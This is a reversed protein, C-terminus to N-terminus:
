LGTTLKLITINGALYCAVDSGFYESVDSALTTTGDAEHYRINMVMSELDVYSIMNQDLLYKVIEVKTLRRTSRLSNIYSSVAVAISSSPQESRVSVNIDVSITEMRKALVNQGLVRTDPNNLYADIDKISSDAVYNIRIPEHVADADLVEVVNTEKASYRLGPDSVIFNYPLDRVPALTERDLLQVSQVRVVPLTFFKSKSYYNYTNVVSGDASTLQNRDITRLTVRVLDFLAGDIFGVGSSWVVSSSEAETAATDVTVVGSAPDYSGTLRVPAWPAVPAGFSLPEVIVYVNCLTANRRVDTNAPVELKITSASTITGRYWGEHKTIAKKYVVRYQVDSESASFNFGSILLTTPSTVATIIYPEVNADTGSDLYLLLEGQMEAAGIVGRFDVQNDRFVNTSISTVGTTRTLLATGPMPPRYIRYGELLAPDVIWFDASFSEIIEWTWRTGASLVVPIGYAPQVTDNAPPSLLPLNYVRGGGEIRLVRGYGGWMGISSGAVTIAPGSTLNLGGSPVPLNQPAPANAIRVAEDALDSSLVLKDAAVETIDYTGLNDGIMSLLQMGATVGAAVFDVTGPFVRITSGEIMAAEHSFRPIIDLVDGTTYAPTDATVLTVSSLDLAPLSAPRLLLGQPDTPVPSSPSNAIFVSDTLSAFTDTDAVPKVYWEYVGPAASFGDLVGTNSGQRVIKGLDASTPAVYGRAFGAGANTDISTPYTKTGAGFVTVYNPRAAAVAGYPGPGSIPALNGTVRVYHNAPSVYSVFHVGDILTGGTVTLRDGPLLGSLDTAVPFYIDTSAGLPQTAEFGGLNGLTTVATSFVDSSLIAPQVEWVRTNNDFAHLTGRYTLNGVRQEVTKGIDASTLAGYLDSSMTLKFIRKPPAFTLTRVSGATSSVIENVEIRTADATLGVGAYPAAFSAEIVMSFTSPDISIIRYSGDYTPDGLDAIVLLDSLKLNSLVPSGVFVVRAHADHVSISAITLPMVDRSTRLAMAAADGVGRSFASLTVAKSPANVSLVTCSGCAVRNRTVSFDTGAPITFSFPSAIRVEDPSIVSSVFATIKTGDGGTSLLQPEDLSLGGTFVVLDGPQALQGIGISSIVQTGAAFDAALTSVYFTSVSLDDLVSTSPAHSPLSTELSLKDAPTLAGALGGIIQCETPAGLAAGVVTLEATTTLRNVETIRAWRAATQDHGNDTGLYVFFTASDVEPPLAAPFYAAPREVEATGPAPAAVNVLLTNLVVFHRALSTNVEAITYTGDVGPDVGALTIRDGEQVDAGSPSIDFGTPFYVETVSVNVIVEDVAQGTFLVTAPASETGRYLWKYVGGGLDDIEEVEGGAVPRGLYVEDTNKALVTYQGAAAGTNIRVHDNIVASSHVGISPVRREGAGVTVSPTYVSKLDEVPSLEMVRGAKATIRRRGHLSTSVVDGVAVPTRSINPGVPDLAYISQTGAANIGRCPLFILDTGGVMDKAALPWVRDAQDATVFASESIGTSDFTITFSEDIDIDADDPSIFMGEASLLGRSFAYALEGAEAQDASVMAIRRTTPLYTLTVDRQSAANTNCWVDVTGGLHLQVPVANVDVTVLDRYMKPHDTGAVYVDLLNSFEDLLPARISSRSVLNRMGINRYMSNVVDLNSENPSTVQFDDPNDCSFLATPGGRVTRISGAPVVYRDGIGTSRVRVDFYFSGNGLRNAVLDSVTIAVPETLNYISGADDVFELYALSYDAAANFFLRVVGEIRAGTQRFKGWNAALADLDEQRMYLYNSLGQNVKVVDLEHRFPQLLVSFAKVVLDNIGSGRSFDREPFAQRMFSEIFSRIPLEIKAV